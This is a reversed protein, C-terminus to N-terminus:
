GEEGKLPRGCWEWRLGGARERKGNACQGINYHYVGTEREAEMTSAYITDTDICHVPKSQVEASREYAKKAREPTPINGLVYCSHLTNERNTAWELNWDHCETKDGNKHNVQPKNEPNPIFAQAVLRHLYMNKQEGDVVISVTLYGKSHLSPSLLQGPIHKEYVRDGDRVTITKPLRFVNGCNSVLYGDAGEIPEWREKSREEREKLAEIGKNIARRMVPTCASGELMTIAERDTM